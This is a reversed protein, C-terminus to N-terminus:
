SALNELKKTIKELIVFPINMLKSIIGLGSFMTKLNNIDTQNFAGIMPAAFLFIGLFVIGGIVLRIWEATALLNLSLYTTIAAIASAIFIRTSSKFDVKVKYHKWTWYLAWFLSPKGALYPGVIVGLIGFTPILIFALPVGVILTLLNQKMVMKTAGLGQQLSHVSLNGFVAFLNNIVYFALLLPANLWKDGYITGIIPKSLVMLAMTAPVLFLSTYKVSSTFVTKLTQPDKRPDLKSFAPFLVTSIPFTFFALLTAFNSAIRYNGILTVDVLSAMMFSYFQILIGVIITAIALPVGYRLLLKLTPSENLKTSTNPSLKKFIAFYLLTIAFICAVVSSFTYGLIAGLAGYGLYVLLPSLFGQLTASCIITFSNLKMREFGIFISQTGMLLSTSLITISVLTILFAAEPKGFITSAILNATLLSIVTLVVATAIEFTLGVEIIKRLDGEKNTDRYQACYKAMATGVGWDQFLLLTAAPILAITYLGYETDSIFMGLIITGVALIVTSLTKGIFLHFSGSASTKAMKFAKDLKRV